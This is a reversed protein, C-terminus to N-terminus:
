FGVTHYNTPLRTVVLISIRRFAPAHPRHLPYQHPPTFLTSIRSLSPSPVSTWAAPAHPHPLPYQITMRYKCASSSSPVSADHPHMRIDDLQLSCDPFGDLQLSCDSDDWSYRVTPTFFSSQVPSSQASSLVPSCVYFMSIRNSQQAQKSAQKTHMGCHMTNWWCVFMFKANWRAHYEVLLCVYVVSTLTHMFHKVTSQKSQKSHTIISETNQSTLNSPKLTESYTPWVM